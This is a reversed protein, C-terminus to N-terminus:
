SKLIKELYNSNFAGAEKILHKVMNCKSRGFSYPTQATTLTIPHFNCFNYTYIKINEMLRVFPVLKWAKRTEERASTARWFPDKTKPFFKSM